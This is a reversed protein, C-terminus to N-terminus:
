VRVLQSPVLDVTFPESAHLPEDVDVMWYHPVGAYRGATSPSRVEAVLLPLDGNEVTAFDRGVITVDPEFHTRDPADVHPFGRSGDPGM